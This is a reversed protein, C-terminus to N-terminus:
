HEPLITRAWLHALISLRAIRQTAPSNQLPQETAAETQTNSGVNPFTANCCSTSEITNDDMSRAREIIKIEENLPVEGIDM